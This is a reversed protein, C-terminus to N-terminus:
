LLQGALKPRMPSNGRMNEECSRAARPVLRRRQRTSLSGPESLPRPSPGARKDIGCMGSTRRRAPIRRNAQVPSPAVDAHLFHHHSLGSTVHADVFRRSRGAGVVYPHTDPQSPPDQVPAPSPEDLPTDPTDGPKQDGDGPDQLDPDPKDNDGDRMRATWRRARDRNVACAITFLRNM